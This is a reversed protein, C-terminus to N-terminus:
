QIRRRPAPRTATRLRGRATALKDISRETVGIRTIGDSIILVGTGTRLPFGAGASTKVTLTVGSANWMAYRGEVSPVANASVVSCQTTAFLTM